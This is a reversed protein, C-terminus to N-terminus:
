HATFRQHDLAGGRGHALAHQARRKQADHFLVSVPDRRKLRLVHREVGEDGAVPQLHAARLYRLRLRRAHLRIDAHVGDQELGGAVPAALNDDVPPDGARHRRHLIVIVLGGQAFVDAFGVARQLVRDVAHHDLPRSAGSFDVEARAIDDIHRHRFARVRRNKQHAIDVQAAHEGRQQARHHQEGLVLARAHLANDDVFEAAVHLNELRTQAHQLFSNVNRHQADHRPHVHFELVLVADGLPELAPAARAIEVHRHHLKAMNGVEGIKLREGELGAYFHAVRLRGFVEFAGIQDHKGARLVGDLIQDVQAAAAHVGRDDAMRAPAPHNGAHAAPVLHQAARQAIGLMHFRAHRLQGPQIQQVHFDDKFLFLAGRLGAADHVTGGAPKRLRVSGDHVAIFDM